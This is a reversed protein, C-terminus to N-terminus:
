GAPRAAVGVPLKYLPPRVPPKLPTARQRGAGAARRLGIWRCLLGLRAGPAAAQEVLARTHTDERGECRVRLIAVVECVQQARVPQQVHGVQHSRMGTYLVRAHGRQLTAAHEHAPLRTDSGDLHAPDSSPSCGLPCHPGRGLTCAQCTYLHLHLRQEHVPNLPRTHSRTCLDGSLDGLYAPSATSPQAWTHIPVPLAPPLPAAGM